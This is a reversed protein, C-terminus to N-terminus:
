PVALSRVAAGIAAQPQSPLVNLRRERGRVCAQTARNVARWTASRPLSALLCEDYVTYTRDAQCGFSPRDARAATLVVRNPARMAGQSFAGSYCSSVIVVTPAGACGVALARALAAPRLFEGSYALWAGEGRQGHSTLFVLCREGQRPQLLGIRQLIGHLTAPEAAPDRPGPNASLRHIDGPRVGRATLWGTMAALANDFVPEANDGAVLVAKWGNEGAAGIAPAALCSAGVICLGLFLRLPLSPLM